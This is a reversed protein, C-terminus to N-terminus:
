KKPGNIKALLSDVVVLDPADRKFREILEIGNGAVSVEAGLRSAAARLYEEAWAEGDAVLIRPEM